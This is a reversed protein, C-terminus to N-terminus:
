SLQYLLQSKILPDLTRAGLPAGFALWCIKKNTPKKIKRIWSVNLGNKSSGKLKVSEIGIHATNLISDHRLGRYFVADAVIKRPKQKTNDNRDERIKM